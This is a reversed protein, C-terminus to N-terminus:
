RKNDNDSFFLAPIRELAEVRFVRRPLEVDRGKGAPDFWVGCAFGADLAALVDNQLDDGVMACRAPPVGAQEAAYRFIRPSPKKAEAAESTVVGSLYPKIDPNDVKVAQVESFGNTLLWVPWRRSLAQLTQRVGPFLHRKRPCVSLYRDAFRDALGEERISFLALAQDFRRTRLDGKSIVGRRYEDWMRDNIVHYRAIFTEVTLGNRGVLELARLTEELAEASNREFDWLTHDLDFFLASLEGSDPRRQKRDNQEM